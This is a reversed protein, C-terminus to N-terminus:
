GSSYAPGAGTSAQPYGGVVAWRTASLGMLEVAVDVTSAAAFTIKTATQNGVTITQDGSGSTTRVVRAVSSSSTCILTKRCGAVPPELMYTDASSASIVSIGENSLSISTGGTTGFVPSLGAGRRVFRTM